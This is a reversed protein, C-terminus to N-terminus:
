NEQEIEKIVETLNGKSENLDVKSITFESNNKSSEIRAKDLEASKQSGTTDDDGESKQLPKQSLQRLNVINKNEDNAPKPKSIQTENKSM